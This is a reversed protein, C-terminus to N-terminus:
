VKWSMNERSAVKMTVSPVIWATMPSSTKGAAPGKMNYYWGSLSSIGVQAITACSNYALWKGIPNSTQEVPLFKMGQVWTLLEHIALFAM